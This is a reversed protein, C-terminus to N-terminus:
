GCDISFDEKGPKAQGKAKNQRGYIYDSIRSPEKSGPVKNKERYRHEPAIEEQM